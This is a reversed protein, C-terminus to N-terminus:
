THELSTSIWLARFTVCQLFDGSSSVSKKSPYSSLIHWNPNILLIHSLLIPTEFKTEMQLTGLFRVEFILLKLLIILKESKCCFIMCCPHLQLYMSFREVCYARAVQTFYFQLGIFCVFLSLLKQHDRASFDAGCNVCGELEIVKILLKICNPRGDVLSLNIFEVYRDWDEWSKSTITAIDWKSGLPRGLITRFHITLGQPKAVGM